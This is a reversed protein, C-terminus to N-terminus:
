DSVDTDIIVVYDYEPYQKKMKKIIKKRLGDPNEEDFDIIIDFSIRKEKEEVYFGHMQLINKYEKIMNILYNKIELYEGSDNAAYIGITLVIGYEVFVDMIIKRTLAHIERATMDDRVQIHCSGVFSNPGYNHLSLDYTGQVEDYSNVKTRITRTIEADVRIGILNDITEKLIEVSSKIIIVSIILGLYGELSIGWIFSIIAAILTSLSLVSDMTADTGSAVLSDSDIQEGVKKVYRGMFFKVVVAVAIIVMSAITYNAEEPHIIKDFSERFATVGAYMVLIAIIVSTFYEIRGHGYPHKKDPKKNSLKTGVITIISSMVDSLNNVADLIIAISNVIFGITAKFIVLIINVVIGLISTKIIKSQRNDM